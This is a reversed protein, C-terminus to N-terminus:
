RRRLWEHDVAEIPVGHDHEKHKENAAPQEHDACAEALGPVVVTGTLKAYEDKRRLKAEMM